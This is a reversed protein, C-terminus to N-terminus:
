SDGDFAALTRPTVLWRLVAGHVGLRSWEGGFDIRALAATPFQVRAGGTLEAVLQSCTPEHNAVLLRGADGAHEGLWGVLEASSIGYLDRSVRIPCDWDGAAAALEATTQARVASSSLVLDPVQDSATLFRGVLAAAKQGRRNLPREHDAGYGVAWDSKGHRLVYLSRGSMEHSADM